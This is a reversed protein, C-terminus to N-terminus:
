QCLAIPMFMLQQTYGEDIVQFGTPCQVPVVILCWDFSGCNRCSYCLLEIVTWKIESQAKPDELFLHCLPVTLLSEHRVDGTVLTWDQGQTSDTNLRCTRQTVVHPEEPHEWKREQGLFTHKPLNFLRWWKGEVKYFLPLDPTLQHSHQHPPSGIQTFSLEILLAECPWLAQKISCSVM